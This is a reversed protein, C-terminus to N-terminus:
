IFFGKIRKFDSSPFPTPIKAIFIDNRHMHDEFFEFRPLLQESGRMKRAIKRQDGQPKGPALRLREESFIEFDAEPISCNCYETHTTVIALQERRM